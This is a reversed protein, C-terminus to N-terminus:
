KKKAVRPGSRASLKLTKLLRRVDRELADQSPSKPDITRYAQHLVRFKVVRKLAAQLGSRSIGKILDKSQAEYRTGATRKVANIFRERDKEEAISLIADEVIHERARDTIFGLYDEKAISASTGPFLDVDPEPQYLLSADFSNLLYFCFRECNTSCFKSPNGSAITVDQHTAWRDCKQERPQIGYVRWLHMMQLVCDLLWRASVFGRPTAWSLLSSRLANLGPAETASADVVIRWSLAFHQHHDLKLYEVFPGDRLEEWVIPATESIARLFLWKIVAISARKEGDVELPAYRSVDGERLAKTRCESSYNLFDVRDRRALVSKANRVDGELEQMHPPLDAAPIDTTTLKIHPSPHKRKGM